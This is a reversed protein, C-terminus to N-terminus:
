RLWTGSLQALIGYIMIKDDFFSIKGLGASANGPLSM